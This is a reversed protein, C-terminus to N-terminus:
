GSPFIDNKMREWDASVQEKSRNYPRVAPHAQCWIRSRDITFPSEIALALPKLDKKGCARRIANFTEPGLCVVLKPCVIMIQPLAFEQAARVLDSPNIKSDIKGPKIFPFLNTAYIDKLEFGFHANLLPILKKNTRLSPTYGYKIAEADIPGSIALDSSWDKLIVMIESDFNYASKTYPSVYDCEYVGGHYDGICTYGNWRSSKRKQALERLQSHKDM